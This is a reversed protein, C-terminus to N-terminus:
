AAKRGVVRQPLLACSPFSQRVVQALRMRSRRRVSFQVASGFHLPPRARRSCTVKSGAPCEGRCYFLGLRDVNLRAGKSFRVGSARRAYDRIDAPSIGALAAYIADWGTIPSAKPLPPVGSGHAACLRGSKCSTAPSPSIGHHRKRGLCVDASAAWRVWFLMCAKCRGSACFFVATKCFRAYNGANSGQGRM